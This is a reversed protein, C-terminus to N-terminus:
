MRKRALTVPPTESRPAARSWLNASSQETLRQDNVQDGSVLSCPTFRVIVSSTLFDLMKLQSGGSEGGSEGGHQETGIVLHLFFGKRLM